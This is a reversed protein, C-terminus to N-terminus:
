TSGQEMRTATCFLATGILARRLYQKLTSRFAQTSFYDPRGMEKFFDEMRGTHEFRYKQRRIFQSPHPPLATVYQYEKPFDNTWRWRERKELKEQPSCLMILACLCYAQLTTISLLM